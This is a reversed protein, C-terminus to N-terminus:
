SPPTSPNCPPDDFHAILKSLDAYWPQTEAAGALPVRHFVALKHSHERHSALDITRAFYFDSWNGTKKGLCVGLIQFHDVDYLRSTRDDNSTRTKQVEVKYAVVQGGHRYDAGGPASSERINKCEAHIAIERGPLWISFDPVNDLDHEEFRLGLAAIHKRMHYEAIAGEVAVRLRFRSGIADLLEASSLGYKTELPHKAM